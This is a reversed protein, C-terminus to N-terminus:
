GERTITSRGRGPLMAVLPLVLPVLIVLVAVLTLWVIGPAGFSDRPRRPARAALVSFTTANVAFSLFYLGALWHAADPHARLLGLDLELGALALGLLAVAAFEAVIFRNGHYAVDMDVAEAVDFRVARVAGSPTGM